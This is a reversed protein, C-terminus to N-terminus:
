ISITYNWGHYIPVLINLNAEQKKPYKKGPIRGRTSLVSGKRFHEEFALSTLFDQKITWKFRKRDIQQLHGVAVMRDLFRECEKPSLMNNFKEIFDKLTTQEKKKGILDNIQVAILKYDINRDARTM